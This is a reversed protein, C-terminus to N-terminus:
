KLASDIADSINSQRREDEARLIPLVLDWDDKHMYRHSLFSPHGNVGVPGAKDLYEYITGISDLDVNGFGALGIMMFVSGLMRKPDDIMQMVYIKNDACDRVFTKLEDKSMRPVPKRPEAQEDTM